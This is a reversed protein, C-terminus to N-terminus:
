PLQSCSALIRQLNQQFSSLTTSPPVMLTEKGNVKPLNQSYSSGSWFIYCLHVRTLEFSANSFGFYCFRTTTAQDNCVKLSSKNFLLHSFNKSNQLARLIHFYYYYYDLRQYYANDLSQVKMVIFLKVILSNAKERTVANPSKKESLLFFIASLFIYMSGSIILKKLTYYLNNNLRESLYLAVVNINAANYNCTIDCWLKCQTTLEMNSTIRTRM